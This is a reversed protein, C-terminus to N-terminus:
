QNVAERRAFDAEAEAATQVFLQELSPAERHLERVMGSSATIAKAIAERLDGAQPKPEITLRHWSGNRSAVDIRAVGDLTRVCTRMGRAHNLFHRHEVLHVRDVQRALARLFPVGGDRSRNDVIIIRQVNSLASQETLTLLMLKLYRTISFNVTLLAFRPDGDFSVIPRAPELRSRALTWAQDLRQELQRRVRNPGDPARLRLIEDRLRRARDQLSV